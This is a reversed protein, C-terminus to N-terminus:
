GLVKKIIKFKKETYPPYRLFNSLGSKSVVVGTEHTFTDVSYKGHYNGLGSGGVGGFPLKIESVHVIVDNICGGGFNLYNVIKKVNENKNSFIYLALPSPKTKVKEIIDSLNEYEIIPLIPGFIEDRMIEDDFSANTLITPMFARDEINFEGGYIDNRGKILSSLQEVKEETIIKTLNERNNYNLNIEKKFFDIFEERKKKHIFVYDPAVCTQGANLFKGWAIKKVADKIKATEDVICPSKGGLELVVPALNEAAKKYIIGGVKRSGTFFYFDYREDLIENHSYDDAFYLVENPLVKTIEKIINNTQPVKRSTKLIVTNGAAIAGITPIIALQFPYNWPSQVLVQGFPKKLVIGRGPLINLSTGTNKITILKHLNNILYELEGIVVQYETLFSEYNHKGLDEKIAGLIEGKSNKIKDRLEKLFDIRKNVSLLNGSNYFDRQSKVIESLSM